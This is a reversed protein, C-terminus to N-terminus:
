AWVGVEQPTETGMGVGVALDEEELGVQSFFDCQRGERGEGGRHGLFDAKIRDSEGRSGQAKEKKASDPTDDRRRCGGVLSSGRVGKGCLAGDKAPPAM